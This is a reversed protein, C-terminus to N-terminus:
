TLVVLPDITKLSLRLNRHDAMARANKHLLNVRHAQNSETSREIARLTEAPATCVVIRSTAQELM